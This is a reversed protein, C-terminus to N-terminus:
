QRCESVFSHGRRMAEETRQVAALCARVVRSDRAHRPWLTRISVGRLPVGEQHAWSQTGAACNGARRSDGMTVVVDLDVGRQLLAHERAKGAQANERQARLAHIRAHLAQALSQPSGITSLIDNAYPHFDAREPTATDVVKVGLGDVEWMLGSDPPLCAREHRGAFLVHLTLPDSPMVIGVSQVHTVNQARTYKRPRGNRWLTKNATHEIHGTPAHAWAARLAWEAGRRCVSLGRAQAESALSERSSEDLALIRAHAPSLPAPRQRAGGIHDLVMGVDAAQAAIHRWRDAYKEMSACALVVSDLTPAAGGDIDTKLLALESALRREEREVWAPDNKARRKRAVAPGARLAEKARWEAVRHWHAVAARPRAWFEVVLPAARGRLLADHQVSSARGEAWAGWATYGGSFEAHWGLGRKAHARWVDLLVRRRGAYTSAKSTGGGAVYKVWMRQMTPHTLLASEKSRSMTM